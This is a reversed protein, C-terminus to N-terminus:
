AFELRGNNAPIKQRPILLGEKGEEWLKSFDYDGITVRGDAPIDFEGMEHVEGLNLGFGVDAVIPCRMKRGFWKELPNTEMYWRLTKAGWELYQKPVYAYIADHVFGVIQLYQPDLEAEMRGLAMVGLSSGFEQVPSNIAQREAEARIGEDASAIQPLHRIRGSYSRVQMHEKAFARMATHWKSLMPYKEFFAVRIRQAERETFEVGYQTKAYAIFKRWSMGYLFGFNVAKAKTRADKQEQKPLKKFTEMTVGMVILATATHIDGKTRYIELMVPDNAMDAAIRLEAQSLDAELLFCHEPSVFMKRYEMAIPGRKPTNQGNPDESNHNLVGCAVYSKDHEVEFDHVRHVGACVVKEIVLGRGTVPVQRSDSSAGGADDSGLQIHRQEDPERRHSPHECQGTDAFSSDGFVRGHSHPARLLTRGGGLADPVGERGLLGNGLSERVAPEEGRAQIRPVEHGEPYQIGQGTYVCSDHGAGNSPQGRLTRGSRRSDGVGASLDHSGQARTGSQAHTNQKTIAYGDKELIFGVDAWLGSELMVRHHATVTLVEGNSLHLSYMLTPAKLFLQRVKRTAGTHSTVTDGVEVDAARIVGRGTPIPTDAHVCSSRGTVAVHLNYVPRVMGDVVYKKRFGRINTDLIRSSKIHEGLEFAFPCDEYFYPLHDKTSTSPVQRAKDLKATTKTFVKPKLRFGDPHNFLIDRVFEARSFKIGKDVHARKISKPVQALLSERQEAVREAMFTEFTDAVEPNVYQGRLELSAFANLGPITVYRYHALLKKDQSIEDMQIHHLRFGADADGCGYDLFDENLPVEIMRSKDVTADFHDSNHSAFGEAVFTHTTTKLSVVQIMGVDEVSVIVDEHHEQPLACGWWSQKALLRMPRFAQLVALSGYSGRCTVNHVDRGAVCNHVSMVGGVIEVARDLVSGAKQAFGVKFSNVVTKSSWGEGDLIGSLWGADFDTRPNIVETIKKIRWGARLADSRRWVLNGGEAGRHVLWEHNRSVTLTKGSAMTIRVGMLRLMQKSLVTAKRLKRRGGDASTEDFGVLTDGVEIDRAEAWTLDSRWIRTEPSVCYGAMAPLRRKTLDALGKTLANEDLLTAQMLTDGGLWYRVGTHAATYVCDYKENQGTVLRKPDDLLRALQAKLRKKARGTQKADPHDWPLMYAKGPEICFQMTLIAADPAYWRLGTNETDYCLVSPKEKILFELDDIFEYDGTKVRGVKNVDFNSDVLRGLTAFDARFVPEHQPYIVVQLPSLMPLVVTRKFEESKKALGRIHTIKVARGEVQKAAENGLPIIVDPKQRFVQEVFHPRCSKQILTKEKTTYHDPDYPCRVQPYFFFDDPVFQEAMASKSFLKMSSQPVLRNYTEPKASPSDVVVLFRANAPGKGTNVEAKGKLPCGECHESYM